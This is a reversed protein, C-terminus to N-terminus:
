GEADDTEEDTFSEAALGAALLADSIFEIQVPHATGAAARMASRLCDVAASLLFEVNQEDDQLEAM